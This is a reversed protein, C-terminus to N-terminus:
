QMHYIDMVASCFLENLTSALNVHKVHSAPCVPEAGGCVCAASWVLEESVHRGETDNKVCCVVLGLRRACCRTSVQQALAQLEFHM